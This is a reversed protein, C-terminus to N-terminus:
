NEIKNNPKRVGRLWEDYDVLLQNQEEILKPDIEAPPSSGSKAAVDNQLKTLLNILRERLVGAEADPVPMQALTQRVGAVNGVNREHIIVAATEQGQTMTALYNLRLQKRAEIEAEVSYWQDTPRFYRVVKYSSILVIAICLGQVVRWPISNGSRAGPRRFDVLLAIAAGAFFGGLHGANDIIGRGIYGIILNIIILPLMGFGFARKFGEPLENRYKIGFVFLVGVLGFLSGSAGVSPGDGSHLLFRGLLSTHLGPQVAHYSAVCGAFGSIVWFLVFRSSGYLKEVYPGIIWLSYMNVLLHVLNGHLFMPVILRWWQRFPEDILLNLKAGYVILIRPSFGDILVRGTAGSDGWMLLFAFLNLVLLIITFKHPRDIIAKAFKITERDARRVRRQPAPQPATSTGCVACATQGAGVISSCNRCLTPRGSNPNSNPESLSNLSVLTISQLCLM